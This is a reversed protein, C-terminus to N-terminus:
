SRLLRVLVVHAPIVLREEHQWHSDPNSSHLLLGVSQWHKTNNPFWKQRSSFCFSQSSMLWFVHKLKCVSATRKAWSTTKNSQLKSVPNEQQRKESHTDTCPLAHMLLGMLVHASRLEHKHWLLYSGVICITFDNNKSRAELPVTDIISESM